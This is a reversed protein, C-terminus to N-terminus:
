RLIAFSEMFSRVESFSIDPDIFIFLISLNEGPPIDIGGVPTLNQVFGVICYESINCRALAQVTNNYNASPYKLGRSVNILGAKSEISLDDHLSNNPKGVAIIKKSGNEIEYIYYLGDEFTFDWNKPIYFSVGFKPANNITKWGLHTIAQYIPKWNFALYVTLLIIFIIGSKKLIRKM